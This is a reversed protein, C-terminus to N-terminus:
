VGLYKENITPDHLLAEGTGEASIRGNEIVYARDAVELCLYVNQEIIMLSTGTKKLEVLMDYIQEVVVPALGLSVEDLILLHPVTMLGRGIAVMQQEGGSLSGARQRLRTKLAPFMDLVFALQEKQRPKARKNLAGTYLNEEVTMDSFLGRGEMVLGIGYKVADQPPIRTIDHGEMEITGSYIKTMGMISRILSTKGAGNSGVIGVISSKPIELSVDWLVQIEGYGASLNNIKLM